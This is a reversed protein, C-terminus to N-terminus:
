AAKKQQALNRARSEAAKRAIASWDKKTLPKKAKATKVVKAARPDQLEKKEVPPAEPKKKEGIEIRAPMVLGRIFGGSETKALLEVPKTPSHLLLNCYTADLSKVVNLAQKLVEVTFGVEKSDKSKTPFVKRYDPYREDCKKVSITRSIGDAAVTFVAQDGKNTEAVDLFAYSPNWRDGKPLAKLIELAAASPLIFPKIKPEAKKLVPYGKPYAKGTPAPTAKFIVLAKGDTAVASGDAEFFIGAIAARYNDSSAAAVLKFVDRNILM